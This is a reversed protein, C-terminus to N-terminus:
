LTLAMNQPIDIDFEKSLKEIFFSGPAHTIGVTRDGQLNFPGQRPM